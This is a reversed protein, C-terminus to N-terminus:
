APPIHVIRHFGEDLAPEVYSSALKNFAIRPIHPGGSEERTKARVMCIDKSATFIVGYIIANFKSAESIIDKRREKTVNTADVVVNRNGQLSERLAKIVNKSTKLVDGNLIVYSSYHYKAWTTKGSGPLGILVIVEPRTNIM